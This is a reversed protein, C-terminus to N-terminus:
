RGTSIMANLMLAFILLSILAPAAYRAWIVGLATLARSIGWSLGFIGGLVMWALSVSDNPLRSLIGEHLPYLLWDGFGWFIYHLVFTAAVGLVPSFPLSLCALTPRLTPDPRKRKSRRIIHEALLQSLAVMGVTGLVVAGVGFSYPTLSPVHTASEQVLWRTAYEPNVFIYLWRLVGAACAAILANGLILTLFHTPALAIRYSVPIRFRGGNTDLQIAGDYRRAVAERVTADVTVAVTEGEFREPASLGRLNSSIYITGRPKGATPVALKQTLRIHLDRAFKEGVPVVGFELSQPEVMLQLSRITYSVPVRGQEFDTKILLAGSYEGSPVRSTDLVADFRVDNGQFESIVKLGPLPTSLPVPLTQDLPNTQLSPIGEVEITGWALGPGVNRISCAIAAHAGSDLEGFHLAGPALQLHPLVRTAGSPYLARRFVELARQPNGAFHSIADHAAQASAAFGNQKLWEAFMGGTLYKLSEDPYREVLRALDHASRARSGDAFTFPPAKYGTAEPKHITKLETLFDDISQFRWSLEPATAVAILRETEPSVNKNFYRPSYQRMEALQSPEQPDRGALVRYLTMGLAYIDSRREPHEREATNEPAYGLTGFRTTGSLPATGYGGAEEIKKTLGFDLLMATKDSERIKINDPKVDRHVIGIRHLMQLASGIQETWALAADEELPRGRQSALEELTPGDVFDMMLYYRAGVAILEAGHDPCRPAAPFDFGCVPCIRWNGDEQEFYAAPINPHRLTALNLAERKFLDLAAAREDHPTSPDDLVHMEKCAMINGVATDRVKYVSGFNGGGLHELVQYREKICDGVRHRLFGIRTKLNASADSARAANPL